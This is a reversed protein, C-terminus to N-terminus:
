SAKPLTLAVYQDAIREALADYLWNQIKEAQTNETNVNAQDYQYSHQVQITNTKSVIKDHQQTYYTVDASMVMRVETLVGRLQFNQLRINQVLISPKQVGSKSDLASETDVTVALLSFKDKLANKLSVDALNDGFILSTSPISLSLPSTYGRLHFGCATVQLVLVAVICSRCFIQIAQKLQM